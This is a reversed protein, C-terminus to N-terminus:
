KEQFTINKLIKNFESPNDLMVTHKSDPIVYKEALIFLNAPPRYNKNAELSDSMIYYREVSLQEFNKYLSSDTASQVLAKSARQLSYGSTASIDEAIIKHVVPDTSKSSNKVIKDPKYTIIPKILSVLVWPLKAIKRSLTLDSTSLVPEVLIIKQLKSLLTTLHISIPGGMSFGVLIDVTLNLMKLLKSIVFSQSKMSYDFDKPKSSLGFGLLDIAFLNFHTDLEKDEFVYKWYQLSCGLGHILLITPKEENNNTRYHITRNDVEITSFM